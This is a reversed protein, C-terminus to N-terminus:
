GPTPKSGYGAAGTPTFYRGTPLPTPRPRQTPKGVDRQAAAAKAQLVVLLAQQSGKAFAQM